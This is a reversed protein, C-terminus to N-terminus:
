KPARGRRPRSGHGYKPHHTLAERVTHVNIELRTAIVRAASRRSMGQSELKHALLLARQRWGDRGLGKERAETMRRGREIRDREAQEAAAAKLGDAFGADYGLQWTDVQAGRKM